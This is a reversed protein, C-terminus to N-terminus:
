VHHLTSFLTPPLSVTAQVVCRPPCSNLITPSLRQQAHCCTLLYTKSVSCSQLCCNMMLCHDTNVSLSVTLLLLMMQRCWASCQIGQGSNTQHGFAAIYCNRCVCSLYAHLSAAALSIMGAHVFTDFAALRCAAPASDEKKSRAPGVITTQDPTQSFGTAASGQLCFICPMSFRFLIDASQACNVVPSAGVNTYFLQLVHHSLTQTAKSSALM